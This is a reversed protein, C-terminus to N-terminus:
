NDTETTTDQQLLPAFVTRLLHHSEVPHRLPRDVDITYRNRRGVKTVAVFGAAILDHVIRHAARETIGVRSAITALRSDPDQAICVLVHAHNTLFTWATRPAPTDSMFCM